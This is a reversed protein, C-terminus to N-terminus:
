EKALSHRKLTYLSTNGLMKLGEVRIKGIERTHIAIDLQDEVSMPLKNNSRKQNARAILILGAGYALGVTKWFM